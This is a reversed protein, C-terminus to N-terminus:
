DCIEFEEIAAAAAAVAAERQRQEEQWQQEQQQAAKRRLEEQLQEAKKLERQRQEEQTRLQEQRRHEDRQRQEERQWQEDKQRQEEEQRQKEVLWQTGKKQQERQQQERQRQEEAEAAADEEEAAKVKPDWSLWCRGCFFQAAYEDTGKRGEVAERGCAGCTGREIQHLEILAKDESRTDVADRDNLARFAKLHAYPPITQIRTDEIAYGLTFHELDLLRESDIGLTQHTWPGFFCGMATGSCGVSEAGLYLAQGVVGAEWHMRKYMWAGFERLLPGYEAFIAFAVCSNGAWDQQCSLSKAADRVDQPSDLLFLPVGVSHAAEVPRWAYRPACAEVWHQRQPDRNLAYLGPTLGDVCHVFLMLLPVLPRSFPLADFPAASPMVGRLVDFLRAAPLARTPEFDIASRRQAICRRLEM